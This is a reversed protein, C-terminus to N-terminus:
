NECNKPVFLRNPRCKNSVIDLELSEEMVGVKSTELKIGYEFDDAKMEKVPTMPLLQIHPEFSSRPIAPTMSTVNFVPMSVTSLRRINGPTSTRRSRSQTPPTISTISYAPISVASLPMRDRITRCRRIFIYVLVFCTVIWFSQMCIVLTLAVPEM